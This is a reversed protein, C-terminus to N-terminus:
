FRLEDLVKDIEEVILVLEDSANSVSARNQEEAHDLLLSLREVTKSTRADIAFEENVLADMRGIVDLSVKGERADLRLEQVAERSRILYDRLDNNEMSESRGGNASRGTSAKLHATM